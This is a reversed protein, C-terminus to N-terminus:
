AEGAKRRARKVAREVKKIYIYRGKRLHPIKERNLAALLEEIFRWGPVVDAFVYDKNNIRATLRMLDVVIIARKKSLAEKIKSLLFEVAGRYGEPGRAIYFVKKM